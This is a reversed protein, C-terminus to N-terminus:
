YKYVKRVEKARQKITELESQKLTDDQKKFFSFVIAAGGSWLLFIARYSSPRIEYIDSMEQGGKMPKIHKTKLLYEWDEEELWDTAQKLLPTAALKRAEKIVLECVVVKM